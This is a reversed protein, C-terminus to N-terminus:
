SEAVRAIVLTPRVKAGKARVAQPDDGHAAVYIRCEGCFKGCRGILKRDMPLRL